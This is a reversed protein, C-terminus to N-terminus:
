SRYHPRRDGHRRLSPTESLEAKATSKMDVILSDVAAQLTAALKKSAQEPKDGIQSSYPQAILRGTRTSVLFVFAYADYFEQREFSSRRQVASRVLLFFDCGIATGARNAEEVSLNYPTAFGASDFAAKALSDDILRVKPQLATELQAAYIKSGEADDPTLVAVGQGLTAGTALLALCLSVVWHRLAPM